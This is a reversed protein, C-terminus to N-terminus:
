SMATRASGFWGHVAHAGCAAQFWLSTVGNPWLVAGYWLCDVGVVTSSSLARDRPKMTAFLESWIWPLFAFSTTVASLTIISFSCM